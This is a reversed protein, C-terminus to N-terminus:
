QDLSNLYAHIAPIDKKLHPLAVMTKTNTKPKYGQPYDGRIIRAVLLELSAGAVAPGISGEIRPDSNHCATCGTTYMMKGRQILRGEPTDASQDSSPKTCAALLLLAGIFFRKM